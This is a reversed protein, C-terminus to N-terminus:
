ALTRLAALANQSRDVPVFLHDHTYGAVVNCSIGADKLVNSIAATLGVAELASHVELTIWAAVNDYSLGLADAESKKVVLTLGEREQVTVVPRVGLPVEFSVITFVYAEDHLVPSMDRLLTRLNTEGAM